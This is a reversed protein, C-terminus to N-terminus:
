ASYGSSGSRSLVIRNIVTRPSLCLLMDVVQTIDSVPIMSDPSVRDAVWATMDTDVYGPALATATVGHPSEEVNLTEVLNLLAAKSAAYVGLGREAYAGTISAL